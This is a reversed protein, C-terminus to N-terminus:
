IELKECFGYTLGKQFNWNKSWKCILAKARSHSTQQISFSRVSIRSKTHWFLFYKFIEVKQCYAHTLVKTNFM